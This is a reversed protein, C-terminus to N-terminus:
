SAKKKQGYSQAKVIGSYVSIAASPVMGQTGGFYVVARALTQAVMPPCIYPLGFLAMGVQVGGGAGASAAFIMSQGEFDEIELDKKGSAAPAIYATSGISTMEATSGSAGAKFKSIGLSGGAQITRLEINDGTAVRRAQYAGWGGSWPGFSGETSYSPTVVWNSPKLGAVKKSLDPLLGRQVAWRQYTQWENSLSGHGPGYVRLFVMGPSYARQAVSSIGDPLSISQFYTWRDGIEQFHCASASTARNGPANGRIQVLAQKTHGRSGRAVAPFESRAISIVEDATAVFPCVPGISKAPVMMIATKGRLNATLELCPPLGNRNQCDLCSAHNLTMQHSM